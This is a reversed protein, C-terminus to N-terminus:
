MKDKEKSIGNKGRNEEPILQKFIAEAVQVVLGNGAQKYLQSASNVQAAKGYDEDTMGMLRFYEKPTLRRVRVDQMVIGFDNNSTTLTQIMGKQVTGRKQWPRNLYIGDGGTAISYGQKTAEPIKLKKM